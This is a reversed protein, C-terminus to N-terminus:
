NLREGGRREGLFREIDSILEDGTPLRAEDVMAEMREVYAKTSEDLATATDLRTRMTRAEEALAPAPISIDLHQELTHLLEVAAAPYGGSVYHPIQAYYGLAPIGAAAIAMELMSIAASPVRLLGDPGPHVGGRLLGPASASGLVPVPRTHPVAAPIAGLSIWQAVGWRRALEIVAASLEPWRFDPEAGTLVLLDRGGPRTRRVVLEPWTLKSLRGDAIELVPRRSRYDFLVNAHFTAVITGGEALYAAATTAASGADIWGDFAAILTPAVLGTDAGLRYLTM